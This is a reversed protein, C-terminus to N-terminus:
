GADASGGSTSRVREIYSRAWAVWEATEPNRDLPHRAEAADCYAKLDEVQRWAEGRLILKDARWAELYKEKAAEM